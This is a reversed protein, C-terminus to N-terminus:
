FQLLEDTKDKNYIINRIRGYSLEEREALIEIAERASGAKKGRQTELYQRLIKFDRKILLNRFDIESILHLHKLTNLTQTDIIGPIPNQDIIDEIGQQDFIDLQNNEM